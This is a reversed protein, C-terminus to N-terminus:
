AARSDHAPEGGAGCLARYVRLTDAACQEWTYPRAAEVAGRRLARWWDDDEGVRLLADRWGAVDLPEVLHAQGGLTEVLADATSALVAGGCALM